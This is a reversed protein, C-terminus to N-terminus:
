IQKLANGCACKGPKQSITGCTCGGGCACAYKAKTSFAVEAGNVSAFLKDGEVKNVTTKTLSKDCSCKGEKRSITQCDCGGCACVYIGDGAKFVPLGEDAFAVVSFALSLVVLVAVLGKESVGRM